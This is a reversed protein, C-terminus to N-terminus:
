PITNLTLLRDARKTWGKRYKENTPREAIVKDIRLLIYRHFNSLFIRPSAMNLYAVTKGGMHGDLNLAAGGMILASQAATSSALCGYLVATDFIAVAIPARKMRECWLKRWYMMAYFSKTDEWSLGAIEEPTVPRKLFESYAKQTVGWRTPGGRDDPDNTYTSSENPLLYARAREFYDSM